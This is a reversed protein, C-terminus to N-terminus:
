LYQIPNKENKSTHVAFNPFKECILQYFIEKACQESNFHGVDILALRKGYDVFDHYRLDATIYADAGSRKVAGIFSGGAGGCVAVRRVTHVMPDGHYCSLRVAQCGFREKAFLALQAVTMPQPLHGVCGSGAPRSAAVVESFEYAPEEYPHVQRLALEVDRRKWRPLLVELRSEDEFHLQSVEGVYPNAGDLARFSGRGDTAFSCFDYNGIAGAGADFLALRVDDLKSVPVYAVLKLQDAERPVLVDVDELGLLSAMRHSIGNPSNDLATHSSYITLGATVANIVCREAETKGTLQKIGGFILPHHSVILNCNMAIAEEVVVPTCDVCVMVGTCENDTPGVQVGCNDWEEQLPLPAISEIADIIEKILM